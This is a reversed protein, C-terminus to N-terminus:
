PHKGGQGTQCSTATVPPRDVQDSQCLTSPNMVASKYSPNPNETTVVMSNFSTAQQMVASASSPSDLLMMKTNHVMHLPLFFFHDLITNPNFQYIKTAGYEATRVEVLAAKM